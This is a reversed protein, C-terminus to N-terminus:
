VILLEENSVLLGSLLREWEAVIYLGVLMLMFLLLPLSSVLSYIIIDPPKM